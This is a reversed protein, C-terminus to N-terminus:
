APCKADRWGVLWDFLRFFSFSMAVLVVFMVEPGILLASNVEKKELYTLLM